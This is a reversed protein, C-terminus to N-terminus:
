GERNCIVLLRVSYHPVNYLLDAKGCLTRRDAFRCCEPVVIFREIDGVGCEEAVGDRDGFEVCFM